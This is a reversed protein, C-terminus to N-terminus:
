SVQNILVIDRKPQHIPTMDRYNLIIFWCECFQPPVGKDVKYRQLVRHSRDCLQLLKFETSPAEDWTWQHQHTLEGWNNLHVVQGGGIGDVLGPHVLGGVRHVHSSGGLVVWCRWNNCDGRDDKWRFSHPRKTYMEPDIPGVVLFFCTFPFCSSLGQPHGLKAGMHDRWQYSFLLTNM